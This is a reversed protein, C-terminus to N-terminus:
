SIILNLSNNIKRLKLRLLITDIRDQLLIYVNNGQISYDKIQSYEDLILEIM